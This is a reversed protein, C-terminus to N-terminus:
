APPSPGELERLDLGLGAMVRLFSVPLVVLRGTNLLAIVEVGALDGRFVWGSLSVLSTEGIKVFSEESIELSPPMPGSVLRIGLLSMLLVEKSDADVDTRGSGMWSM